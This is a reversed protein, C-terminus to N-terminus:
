APTALRQNMAELSKLVAAEEVPRDEGELMRGMSTAYVLAMDSRWEGNEHMLELARSLLGGCRSLSGLGCGAAVGLVGNALWTLRAQDPDSQACLTQIEDVWLRLSELMGDQAAVVAQGARLLADDLKLGFRVDVAEALKNPVKYIRAGTM